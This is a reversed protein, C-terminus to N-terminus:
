TERLREIRAIADDIASYGDGGEEYEDREAKLERVVDDLTQSRSRLYGDLYVRRLDRMRLQEGLGQAGSVHEDAKKNVGPFEAAFAELAKERPTM